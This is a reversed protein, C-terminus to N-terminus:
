VLVYVFRERCCRLLCKGLKKEPGLIEVVEDGTQKDEDGWLILRGRTGVPGEGFDGAGYTGLTTQYNLSGKTNAGDTHWTTKNNRGLGLSTYTAGPFDRHLLHNVQRVLEAAWPPFRPPPGDGSRWSSSVLGLAAWQGAPDRFSVPFSRRSLHLALSAFSPAPPDTFDMSQVMHGPVALGCPAISPGGHGGVRRRAAPAGRGQVQPGQPSKEKEEAIQQLLTEIKEREEAALYQWIVERSADAAVNTNTGVCHAFPGETTTPADPDNKNGAWFM